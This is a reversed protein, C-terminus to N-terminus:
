LCHNPRSQFKGQPAALTMSQIRLHSSRDRSKFRLLTDPHRQLMKAMVVAVHSKNEEENHRVGARDTFPFGASFSKEEAIDWADQCGGAIDWADQRGGAKQLSAPVASVHCDCTRRRTCPWRPPCGLSVRFRPLPPIPVNQNVCTEFVPREASPRVNGQTTALAVGNCSMARRFPM